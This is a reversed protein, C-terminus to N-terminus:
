KVFHFKRQSQLFLSRGGPDETTHIPTEQFPYDSKNTAFYVAFEGIPSPTQLRNGKEKRKPWNPACKKSKCKRNRKTKRKQACFKSKCNINRKGKKPKKTEIYDPVPHPPILGLNCSNERCHPICTGEFVEPCLHKCDKDEGCTHDEELDNYDSGGKGKSNRRINFSCINEVCLPKCKAVAEGVPCQCEGDHQCKQKEDMVLVPARPTVELLCKEESCRSTCSEIMDAPCKCDANSACKTEKEVIIYPGRPVMQVTCSRQECKITCRGNFDEPCLHECDEDSDCKNEQCIILKGVILLLFITRMRNIM